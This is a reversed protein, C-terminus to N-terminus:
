PISRLRHALVRSDILSELWHTVQSDSHKKGTALVQGIRNRWGTPLYRARQNVRRGDTYDMDDKHVNWEGIGNGKREWSGTKLERYTYMVIMGLCQTSHMIDKRAETRTCKTNIHGFSKRKYKLALFVIRIGM